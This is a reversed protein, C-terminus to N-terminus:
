GDGDKGGKVLDNFLDHVLLINDDEVSGIVAGFIDMLNLCDFGRPNQSKLIRLTAFFHKIHHERM